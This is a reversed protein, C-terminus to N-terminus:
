WGTISSPSGPVLQVHYISAIEETVYTAIVNEGALSYHIGDPERLTAAVGNVMATSAFDGAPNAFLSWTSIFSARPSLSAAEQYLSNLTAIGQSYSPQQMIPLGVWLVFAGDATAENIIQDVRALYADQWAATPFQLVSGDQVMGQEDNGGLSVIVLQPHYQAIDAELRTPWDYFSTNVLGTASTDLQDLQLGSGTPLVRALGWGLDNGLSDGIELVV